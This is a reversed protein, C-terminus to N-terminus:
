YYIYGRIRWDGVNLTRVSKLAYGIYNMESITVWSGNVSEVYAVHGYMRGMWGGETMVMISGVQPISGTQRGYAQANVLWSKANGSWPVVVKQAVYWTCQGYPFNRSVGTGAGTVYSQPVIRSITNVTPMQGDPIILKQNIQIAGDAPLDNFAIIKETNAKYKTAIAGITDNSKVAYILGNIPLITLEDGPHILSTEKLDNSWLLTNLSIGFKAAISSSSDGEQVVYTSIEERPEQSITTIPNTQSLLANEQWTILDTEKLCSDGECEYNTQDTLSALSSAMLYNENNIFIETQEVVEQENKGFYISLLQEAGRVPGILAFIMIFLVVAALLLKRNSHIISAELHKKIGM